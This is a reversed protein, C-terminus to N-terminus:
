RDDGHDCPLRQGRLFEGRRRRPLRRQDPQGATPQPAAGLQGRGGRLRRLRRRVIYTGEAIWINDGAAASQMAAHASNFANAWSTGDGNGAADADVYITEGWGCPDPTVTCDNECGDDDFQNGDDCAEQGQWLIGDGCVAIVCTDLCGDTDVDNGDDCQEGAAAYLFGDGCEADTCEPTCAADAGNGNGDDCEEGAQLIDDGCSPLTCANTCGDDNVANDDDCEEGPQVFGDGCSALTCVNTCEDANSMNGDDCGEGPGQFGDGCINDTCDAKARPV